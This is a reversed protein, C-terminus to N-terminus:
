TQTDFADSFDSPKFYFSFWTITNTRKVCFEDVHWQYIVPPCAGYSHSVAHTDSTKCGKRIDLVMQSLIKIDHKKVM